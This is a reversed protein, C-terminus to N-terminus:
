TKPLAAAVTDRTAAVIAEIGPLTPHIHDPQVLEPRGIVAQLFFPVLGAEHARALAPFIPDFRARYDAGMNPPALMGMIVVKIKRRDLESLVADLNRRTQEPPLGRLVDNGGLSVLVLEPPTEQSNLIFELRQLGDGTTDGSVSANAIRANIGRARLAAELRAPYSDERNLGYGAFLSDGLALIRREPGMVPATPPADVASAAAPASAPAEPDVGGKGCGALLAPALLTAALLAPYTKM